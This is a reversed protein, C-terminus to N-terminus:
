SPKGTLQKGEDAGSVSIRKPQPRPQKPITVELLGNAVTAGIESEQIQGPLGIQRFLNGQAIERRVYPGEEASPEGHHEAKITLTGESFTVEIEEPSFGPVLAEIRYDAETERVNVPLYLGPREPASRHGQGFADGFVRDMTSHLSALEGWPDWRIM